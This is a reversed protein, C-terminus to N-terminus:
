DAPKGATPHDPGPFVPDSGRVPSGIRCPHAPAAYLHSAPRSPRLIYVGYIGGGAKGPQWADMRVALLHLALAILLFVAITTM